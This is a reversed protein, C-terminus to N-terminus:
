DHQTPVALFDLRVSEPGFFPDATTETDRTFPPPPAWPQTRPLALVCTGTQHQRTMM